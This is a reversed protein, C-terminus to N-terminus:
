FCQMKLVYKFFCWKMFHKLFESMFAFIDLISRWDFKIANDESMVCFLIEINLLSAFYILTFIVIMSGVVFRCNRPLYPYRGFVFIFICLVVNVFGYLASPQTVCGLGFGPNTDHTGSPYASGTGCAADATNRM